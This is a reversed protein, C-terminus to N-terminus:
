WQLRKLMRQISCKEAFSCSPLSCVGGGCVCVYKYSTFISINICVILCWWMATLTHIANVRTFLHFHIIEADTDLIAYHPLCFQEGGEEGVLFLFLFLFVLFM